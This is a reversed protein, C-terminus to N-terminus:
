ELLTRRQEDSLQEMKTRLQDSLQTRESDSLQQRQRFLKAQLQKVEQLRPDQRSPWQWVAFSIGFIVILALSVGWKRNM